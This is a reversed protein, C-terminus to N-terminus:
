RQTLADGAETAGATREYASVAVWDVAPDANNTRLDASVVLWERGTAPEVVLDREALPWGAPDVGLRWSGDAREETRGPWPGEALGWAAPLPAGHEDVGAVAQRRVGLQTNTLLVAM